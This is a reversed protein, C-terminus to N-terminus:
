NIEKEIASAKILAIELTIYRILIIAKVTVLKRNGGSLNRESLGILLVPVRINEIEFWCKNTYTMLTPISNRRTACNQENCSM